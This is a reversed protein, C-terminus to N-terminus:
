HELSTLLTVDAGSTKNDVQGLVAGVLCVEAVLADKKLLGGGAVSFFIRRLPVSVLWRHCQCQCGTKMEEASRGEGSFIHEGGTLEQPDHRTM